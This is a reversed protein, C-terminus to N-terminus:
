HRTWQQPPLILTKTGLVFIVSARSATIAVLFDVKVPFLAQIVGEHRLSIWIGPAEFLAFATFGLQNAETM